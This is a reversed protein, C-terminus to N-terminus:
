RGASEVTQHQCRRGRGPFNTRRLSPPISRQGITSALVGSDAARSNALATPASIKESTEVKGGRGPVDETMIGTMGPPAPADSRGSGDSSRVM